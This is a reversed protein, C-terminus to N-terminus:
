IIKVEIEDIKAFLNNEEDLVEVRYVGSRKIRADLQVPEHPICDIRLIERNKIKEKLVLKGLLPVGFKGKLRGNEYILPVEIYIGERTVKKINKLGKIVSIYLTFERSEGGKLKDYKKLYDKVAKNLSAGATNTPELGLQTYGRWGGQDIWLGVYPIKDVPFNLAIFEENKINSAAVWGEKLKDTFIDDAFGLTHDGMLSLNIEKRDKDKSIPWEIWDGMKGLREGKSDWINLRTGEPLYIRTGKGVSGGPSVSGHFAWIYEWEEKDTNKIKYYLQLRSEFEKLTVKRTINLPYAKLNCSTKLSTEKGNSKKELVKWGSMWTEGHDPLHIGRWTCEEVTPLMEDFGGSDYPIFSAGYVPRKLPTIPSHWAFNNGSQKFIFDYIKSGSAPIVSISLFKNELIFTKLGRIKTEKM